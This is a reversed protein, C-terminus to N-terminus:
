QQFSEETQLKAQDLSVMGKSMNSFRKHGDGTGVCFNSSSLPLWTPNLLAYRPDAVHPSQKLRTEGLCLDDIITGALVSSLKMCTM